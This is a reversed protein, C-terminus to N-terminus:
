GGSVPPIVAIEMGSSLLQQENAYAHDVSIVSRSILEVASPYQQALTAKVTAVTADNELELEIERAGVKESMEAFLLVKIKM